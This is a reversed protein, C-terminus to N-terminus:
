ECSLTASVTNEFYFNQRKYYSGCDLLVIWDGQEFQKKEGHAVLPQANKAIFSQVAETKTVPGYGRQLQANEVVTLLHYTLLEPKSAFYVDVPELVKYGFQTACGGLLSLCVLGFLRTQFKM